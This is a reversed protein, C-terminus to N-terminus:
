VGPHHDADLQDVPRSLWCGPSRLAWVLVVSVLEDSRVWTLDIRLCDDEEEVEEEVEVTADALAGTWGGPIGGCLSVPSVLVGGGLGGLGDPSSLHFKTSFFTQPWIWLIQATDSIQVPKVHNTKSSITNLTELNSGVSLQFQNEANWRRPKFDKFEVESCEYRLGKRM